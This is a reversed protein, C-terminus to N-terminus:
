SFLQWVTGVIQTDPLCEYESASHSVSGFAQEKFSADSGVIKAKGTVNIIEKLQTV